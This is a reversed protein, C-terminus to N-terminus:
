MRRFYRALLSWAVRGFPRRGDDNTIPPSTGASKQIETGSAERPAGAQRDHCRDISQRAARADDDTKQM